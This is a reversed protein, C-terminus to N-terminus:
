ELKTMDFLYMVESTITTNRQPMAVFYYTGAQLYAQDAEVENDQTPNLYWVIEDVTSDVMFIYISDIDQVVYGMVYYGSETIDIRYYDLEFDSEIMGVVVTDLPINQATTYSKSCSSDEYISNTQSSNRYLFEDVTMPNQIDVQDVQSIEIALNLNQGETFTSTTIGIVEGYANLLPGGSNGSSIAANTQIYNVGDYVRSDNTVMGDSFTSTLGLSSGITYTSEGITIGHTNILLSPSDSEVYLLAIDLSESYGLVKTVPIETGNYLQISLETADDIVHYNTVVTNAKMFFGSGLSSGANVQVVSLSCKAYLEEPKLVTQKTGEVTVTCTYKTGMYTGIIKTKGEKVGTVTGNKDITAINKNSSKWTIEGYAGKISLITQEDPKLVISKESISPNKVKIKCKYTKKEHTATITTSGKSIGTVIGNSSVTAISKDSSSWTVKKKASSLSLKLTSGVYISASSKNLKITAADVTVDYSNNVFQIPNTMSIVATFIIVCLYKLKKM